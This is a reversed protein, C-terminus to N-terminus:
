HQTTHAELNTKLPYREGRCASSRHVRLSSSVDSLIMDSKSSSHVASRVLNCCHTGNFCWINKLCVVNQPVHVNICKNINSHIRMSSQDSCDCKWRFTAWLFVSWFYSLFLGAAYVTSVPPNHWSAPKNVSKQKLCITNWTRQFGRKLGWMDSTGHRKCNTSVRM